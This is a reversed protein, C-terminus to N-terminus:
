YEQMVLINKILDPTIIRLYGQRSYGSTNASATVSLTHNGEGGYGPSVSFWIPVNIFSTMINWQRNTEFTVKHEGASSAFYITDSSASIIPTNTQSVSITQPKVGSGDVTITATRRSPSTNASAFVSVLKNNMGNAPSISLWDSANSSVTWNKSNSFIIFTTDGGTSTFNMASVSLTMEGDEKQCGAGTVLMMLALVTLLIKQDLRKDNM